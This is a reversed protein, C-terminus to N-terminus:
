VAAMRDSEAIREVLDREAADKPTAGELLQELRDLTTAGLYRRVDEGLIIPDGADRAAEFCRPARDCFGLCAETYNTGADIVANLLDDETVPDGPVKPLAQAARELLDFGRRAREAQYRLDEDPRVSPFMSGPQSLVLFGSESVEVADRIGLEEVVLQIAHLYIGAQARAIALEHPDTHGGRDPYTKVEGVILKPREGDTRIALADIILVAEPLMVGRPIRVTAAAVLAPLADRLKKTTAAAIQDFLKRTEALAEDLTGMKTGGNMRLRLDRFTNASAPLVGKKVLGELLREGQQAFLSREFTDGRIIAFPSQGFPTDIKEHAAVKDMRMNHVASVTNAECAPNKAWQEFRMRTNRRAGEPDIVAGPLPVRGAQSQDGRAHGSM